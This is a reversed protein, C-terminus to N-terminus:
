QETTEEHRLWLSLAVSGALISAVTGLTVGVPVHVLDKGLMKAGVFVLILALGYHLYRFLGMLGALAFYISRLGCIAMVNSSYLVFTDNSIALAAPVSDVAFVVDTTEVVILALFLPTAMWRGGERVWFRSGHLDSTVPLYRRCLKLIPSQGPKLEKGQELALRIGTLVLFGGLLYATWEFRQILTVGLGIFLARMVLAGLIGYFLVRHQLLIPVEFYRFIIVFVFLNDVSLTEETLYCALYEVARRRGDEMGVAILGCLLLALTIWVASWALAERMRIVHAKRHFIGLDVVLMVPVLVGFVVWMTTESIM